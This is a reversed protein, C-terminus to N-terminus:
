AAAVHRCGVKGQKSAGGDTKEYASLGGCAMVGACLLVIDIVLLLPRLLVRGCGGQGAQKHGLITGKSAPVSGSVKGGGCLLMWLLVLRLLV